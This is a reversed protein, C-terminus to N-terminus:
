DATGLSGASESRKFATGCEPCRTGSLGFLCYGCRSCCGSPYEGARVMRRGVFTGAVFSLFILGAFVSYRTIGERDGAALASALYNLPCGGTLSSVVFFASLYSVGLYRFRNRAYYVFVFGAISLVASEPIYVFFFSIDSAFGELVTGLLRRGLWIGPNIPLWLYPLIVYSILLRTLAALFAGSIVDIMVRKCVLRSASHGSM